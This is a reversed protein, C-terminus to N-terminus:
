SVGDYGTTVLRYSSLLTEPLDNHRFMLSPFLDIGLGLLFIPLGM